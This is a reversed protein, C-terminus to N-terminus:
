KTELAALREELAAIREKLRANERRQYAAEMCLAETYRAMWQEVAPVEGEADRVEHCLIGYRCVDLNESAFTRDVAQAILGVHLRASAGKEEVADLFQFQGWRVGGWADLVDDPVSELPTKLREDSSTQVTQGNWKLTGNSQCDLQRYTGNYAQVRVLGQNSHNKGYMWIGGGDSAATGNFLALAGSANGSQCFSGNRTIVGSMTGGSLPLYTSTITNGSGDKGAQINAVSTQGTGGNAVPITDKSTFLRTWSSWTDSVANYQRIFVRHDNSDNTGWRFWMQRIVRDAGSESGIVLLTGNVGEPMNSITVGTGQNFTYIGATLYNNIDDNTNIYLTDRPFAFSTTAIHNNNDTRSPVPATAYPDGTSPYVVDVTARTSSGAEPKYASMRSVVLGSPYVGTEFLGYRHNEDTDTLLLSDGMCLTMFKNVSPNTGKTLDSNNLVINPFDNNVHLDGTMTESSTNAHVIRTDRPIWDRTVIDTNSNRQSSTSPADAFKIGDQDFGARLQSSDNLNSHNVAVLKMVYAGSAYHAYEVTALRPNDVGQDNVVDYTSDEYDFSVYKTEAPTTGRTIDETKVIVRSALNWGDQQDHTQHSVFLKRGTISEHGTRHVLNSLASAIWQKIDYWFRALGTEDLYAM